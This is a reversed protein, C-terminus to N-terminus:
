CCVRKGGCKNLDGLIQRGCLKRECKEWIQLYDFGKFNVQCINIVFYNKIDVRVRHLARLTFTMVTNLMRGKCVNDFENVLLQLDVERETRRMM